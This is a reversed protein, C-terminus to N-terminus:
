DPQDGPYVMCYDGFRSSHWEYGLLATFDGTNAERIMQRTKPWHDAQVKFGNVWKMHRDGPMIPMDHWSSHGTFAFFDLHEQANEISRRLSGKAYGVENHNHLDGWFLRYKAGDREDAAQSQVHMGTLLSAALSGGVFRRRSLGCEAM